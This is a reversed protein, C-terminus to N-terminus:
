QLRTRLYARMAAYASTRVWIEVTAPRVHNSLLALQRMRQYVEVDCVYHYM